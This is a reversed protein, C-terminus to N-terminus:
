KAVVIKRYATAGGAKRTKVIYLGSPLPRGDEDRGNWSLSAGALSEAEYVKKGNVDVVTIQVVEAEFIIQDNIGDAPMPSLLTQSAIRDSLDLGDAKFLVNAADATRLAVSSRSFVVPFVGATPALGPAGHGHVDTDDQGAGHSQFSLTAIKLRGALPKQSGRVLTLTGTGTEERAGITFASASSDIGSLTLKDSPYLLSAQVVNVSQLSDLFVDVTLPDVTTKRARPILRLSASLRNAPASAGFAQTSASAPTWNALLISLDAVGVTNDDNFDAVPDTSNWRGLFLSLDTVNVLGDGNMDGLGGSGGGATTTFMLDGTFAAAGDNGTALVRYHHMTNPQLGTLDYVHTTMLTPHSAQRGYSSSTGYDLVSTAAASTNFSVRATTATINAVNLGTISVSPAQVGAVELDIRHANFGWGGNPPCCVSQARTSRFEVLNAGRNVAIGDIVKTRWQHGTAPLNRWTGGNVRVQSTEDWGNASFVLRGAGGTPHNLTVPTSQYGPEAHISTVEYITKQPTSAVARPQVRSSKFGLNDWHTTDYGMYFTGPYLSGPEPIRADPNIRGDPWPGDDLWIDQFGPCDTKHVPDGPVCDKTPNYQQRVLALSGTDFPMPVEFAYRPYAHGAVTVQVGTRDFRVEVKCRRDDVGACVLDGDGQRVGADERGLHHEEVSMVYGNGWGGRGFNISFGHNVLDHQDGDPMSWSPAAPYRVVSDSVILHITQRGTVNLDATFTAYGNDMDVADRARYTIAGLNGTEFMNDMLHDACLNLQEDPDTVLTMEQHAGCKHMVVPRGPKSYDVQGIRVDWQGVLEPVSMFPTNNAYGNFSTCVGTMGNPLVCPLEDGPAARLFPATLLWAAIVALSGLKKM